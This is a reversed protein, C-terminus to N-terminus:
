GRTRVILYFAALVVVPALGLVRSLKPMTKFRFATVIAMIVPLVLVAWFVSGLIVEHNSNQPRIFAPLQLSVLVLLTWIVFLGNVLSSATM